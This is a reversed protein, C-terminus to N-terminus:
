EDRVTVMDHDDPGLRLVHILRGAADEEIRVLRLLRRQMEAINQPETRWDLSTLASLSM